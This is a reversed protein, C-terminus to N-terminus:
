PAEASWPDHSWGRDGAIEGLGVLMGFGERKGYSKVALWARFSGPTLAVGWGAPLQIARASIDKDM